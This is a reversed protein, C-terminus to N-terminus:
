LLLLTGFNEKRGLGITSHREIVQPYFSIAWDMMLLAEIESLVDVAATLATDQHISLLIHSKWEELKPIEAQLVHELEERKENNSFFLFFIPIHLVKHRSHLYGISKRL